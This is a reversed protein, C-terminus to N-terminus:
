KNFRKLFNEEFSNGLPLKIEGVSVMKNRLSSVKDLPIVYSRHIRIFNNEPLKELINKITMRTIIPRQDEMHIKLYDDYGEIYQINKIDIKVLSYDARIFLYQAETKQKQLQYAYYDQAKEAAQLFRKFTFPKLLYDVANLNFGEVAFESYATTFIVMTEQQISKYLDIGNLSPMNVDLFLLDVPFKKLYRLAETPQNFTKQLNVFDIRGCFNQIISLAPLEDDIAIAEIM